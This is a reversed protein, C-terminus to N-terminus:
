KNLMSPTKPQNFLFYSAVLNASIIGVVTVIGAIISFKKM